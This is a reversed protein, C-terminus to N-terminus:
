VFVRKLFARTRASSPHSFIEEPSGQEAIIGGDMFVVRHSVERAFQMEHTIILMSVGEDSLSKMVDLVEGTLEPDLASTPEDFVLLSPNLALARAIAARQQEGGSLSGPKYAHRHQLHVKELMAMAYDNAASRSFNRCRRLAFAINGLVTMHPWLNFQQFIMGVYRSRKRPADILRTLDEKDIVIQGSTFHELGCVCRALTSKGAGSPGIISVTQGKVINLSVDHLVDHAGYQKNM